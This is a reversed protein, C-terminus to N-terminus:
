ICVNYIYNKEWNLVFFFIKQSVHKNLSIIEFKKLNIQNSSAFFVNEIYIVSNQLIELYDTYFEIYQSLTQLDEIKWISSHIESIKTNLYKEEEFVPSITCYDILNVVWSWTLICKEDLFLFNPFLQYLNGLVNVSKWINICGQSVFDAKQELRFLVNCGSLLM